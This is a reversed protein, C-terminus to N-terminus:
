KLGSLAVAKLIQRQFLLFMIMVPLTVLVSGAFLIDWVVKNKTIFLAMALPLVRL